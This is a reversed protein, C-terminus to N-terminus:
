PSTMRSRRGEALRFVCLTLPPASEIIVAIHVIRILLWLLILQILGIQNRNKFLTLLDLVIGHGNIEDFRKCRALGTVVHGFAKQRAAYLSGLVGTGYVLIKM